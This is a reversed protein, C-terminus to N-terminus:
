QLCWYTANGCLGQCDAEAFSRPCGFAAPDGVNNCTGSATVRGGFVTGPRCAYPGFYAPTPTLTPTPSVGPIFGPATVTTGAALCYNWYAGWGCGEKASCGLTTIDPDAWDQLKACVRNGTCMNTDSDSKYKYPERTTPDCPVKALYPALAPADCSDLITAAPYCGNDNYYEEFSRRINAVDTKRQADQARFINRKWNVLLFLVALIAIIAVVVLLEALTWGSEHSSSSVSHRMTRM